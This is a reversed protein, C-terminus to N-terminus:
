TVVCAAANLDASYFHSIVFKPRNKYGRDVNDVKQAESLRKRRHMRGM